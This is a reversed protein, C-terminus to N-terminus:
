EKAGYGELIKIIEYKKERKALTLPTIGEDSRANVDAGYTVLLKVMEKNDWLIAYFIPTEGGPGDDYAGMKVDRANVDAGYGILLKLMEKNDIYIANFLPTQGYGDAHNVDVKCDEILFKVINKRNEMVATHLPLGLPGMHCSALFYVDGGRDILFKLLKESNVMVAMNLPTATLYLSIQKNIEFGKLKPDFKMTEELCKKAEDPKKFVYYLIYAKIFRAQTFSPKYDLAKNYCYLARRCEDTDSGYSSLCLCSNAKNFWIGSSKPDKELAMDFCNIAEKYKKNKYLEIGKKNWEEASQALVNTRIFVLILINITVVTFFKNAKM